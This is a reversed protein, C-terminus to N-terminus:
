KEGIVRRRDLNKKKTNKTNLNSLFKQANDNCLGGQLLWNTCHKFKQWVKLKDKLLNSFFM